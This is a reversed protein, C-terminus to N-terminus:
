QPQPTGEQVLSRVAGLSSRSAVVVAKSLDVEGSLMQDVFGDLTAIRVLGIPIGGAADGQKGTSAASAAPAAGSARQLEDYATDLDDKSLFFPFSQAGSGDEFAVLESYFLPVQGKAEDLVTPMISNQQMQFNLARNALVVQRRSPRVRLTGGLSGQEGRVLPFYVEPLTVVKLRAEPSSKQLLKLERLAEQPDLYFYGVRGGGGTLFPSDEENVIAVVPVKSLKGNIQPRSLKVAAAEAPADAAIAPPIAGFGHQSTMVAVAAAASRMAARRTQTSRVADDARADIWGAAALRGDSVEERMLTGAATRSSRQLAALPAAALVHPRVTQDAHIVPPSAGPAARLLSLAALAVSAAAVSM